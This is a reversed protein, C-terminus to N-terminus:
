VHKLLKSAFDAFLSIPFQVKRVLGSKLLGFDADVVILRQGYRFLLVGGQILRVVVIIKGAHNPRM